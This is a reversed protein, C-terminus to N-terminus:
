SLSLLAFGYLHKGLSCHDATRPRRLAGGYAAARTGTVAPDWGGPVSDQVLLDPM